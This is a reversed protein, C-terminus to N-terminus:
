KVWTDCSCLRTLGLTSQRRPQRRPVAKRDGRTRPLHKGPHVKGMRVDRFIQLYVSAMGCLSWAFAMRLFAPGAAFGTPGVSIVLEDPCFAKDLLTDQSQTARMGLTDWTDVISLGPSDKPLFGHIVQPNDPDSNDQARFAARGRRVVGRVDRGRGSKGPDV